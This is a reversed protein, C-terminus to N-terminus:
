DIVPILRSANATKTGAKRLDICPVRGVMVLESPASLIEGGRAGTMALLVALWWCDDRHHKRFQPALFFHKLEEQTFPRRKVEGHLEDRSARRTRVSEFDDDKLYDKGVAWKLFGRIEDLHRQITKIHLPKGRDGVTDRLFDAFQVLDRKTVDALAKQKWVRELYVFSTKIGRVTGLSYHPNDLWFEEQYDQWPKGNHHSVPCEEQKKAPNNDEHFWPKLFGLDESMEDSRQKVEKFWREADQPDSPDPFKVPEPPKGTKMFSHMGSLKEAQRMNQGLLEGVGPHSLFAMMRVAKHGAHETVPVSEQSVVAKQLATLLCERTIEDVRKMHDHFTALVPAMRQRALTMDATKLSVVIEKGLCKQHERSIRVRFYLSNRRRIVYPPM